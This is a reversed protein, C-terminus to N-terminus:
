HKYRHEIPDCVARAHFSPLKYLPYKGGRRGLAVGKMGFLKQSPQMNESIPQYLANHAPSQWFYTAPM